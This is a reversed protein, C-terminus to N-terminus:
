LTTDSSITGLQVGANIGDSLGVYNITQGIVDPGGANLPSTDFKIAPVVATFTPYQGGTAIQNPNSITFGMPTSVDSVFLDYLESRNYFESTLTGTITPYANEIPESVFGQSGLGRRDEKMPRTIKLTWGSILSSPATGGTISVVGATTAVTGGLTLGGVPVDIFSFNGSGAVYTPTAAATATLEQKAVGTVTVKLPNGASVSFEIDNIKFGPYTFAYQTGTVAALLKQVTVSQGVNSAWTYYTQYAGSTAIQTPTTAAGIALKLLAGFKNTPVDMTWGGTAGREVVRHRSARNFDASGRLGMGQYGTKVASLSESDFEVAHDTTVPTGWVTETGYMLNSGLGSGPVPM